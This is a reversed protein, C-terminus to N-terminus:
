PKNGEKTDNLPIRMFKCSFTPTTSLITTEISLRNVDTNVREQSTLKHVLQRSNIDKIQSSESCRGWRGVFKNLTKGIESYETWFICNECGRGGIVVSSEVKELTTM